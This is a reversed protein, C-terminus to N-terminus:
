WCRRPSGLESGCTLDASVGSPPKAAGLGLGYAEVPEAVVPDVPPGRRVDEAIDLQQEVHDCVVRLHCPDGTRMGECGCRVAVFNGDAVLCELRRLFPWLKEQTVRARSEYLELPQLKHANEASTPPRLCSQEEVPQIAQFVSFIGLGM